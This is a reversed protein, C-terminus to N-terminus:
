LFLPLYYYAFFTVALIVTSVPCDSHFLTKISLSTIEHLFTAKITKRDKTKGINSLCGKTNLKVVFSVIIM